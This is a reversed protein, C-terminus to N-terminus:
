IIFNSINNILNYLDNKKDNEYLNVNGNLILIDINDNKLVDIMSEHYKHCNELYDLSICSEGSRSRHNVRIQCIDPNTNIYIIKSIPYDKEFCDFWKLYIQYNVHEIDNNDYLMKAFVFRDTYLSRETVIICNNNEEVTKKLLALRSIYAMMQFTFAYKYIDAYYLQIINEGELNKITEWEEVPELLFIVMMNNSNFISSNKTYHTKLTELITSKGSGINGEISVIVNGNM